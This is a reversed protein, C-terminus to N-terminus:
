RYGAHQKIEEGRRGEGLRVRIGCRLEIGGEGQWRGLWPGTLVLYWSRRPILVVVVAVVSMPLAQSCGGRGAAPREWEFM